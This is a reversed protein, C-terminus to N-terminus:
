RGRNVNEYETYLYQDTTQLTIVLSLASNLIEYDVMVPEILNEDMEETIINLSVGKTVAQAIKEMIENPLRKGYKNYAVTVAANIFSDSIMILFNELIRKHVHYKDVYDDLLQMSGAEDYFSEIIHPIAYCGGITYGGNSYALECARLADDVADNRAKLHASGHAGVHIIGMSCDLKGLRIQKNHISDSVITKANAEKLADRIEAQLKGKKTKVANSSLNLGKAIMSKNGVVLEECAGGVDMLKEFISVTMGMAEDYAKTYEESNPNSAYVAFMKQFAKAANNIMVRTDSDGAIIEAGVLDCFDLVCERDIAAPAHYEVFTIPVPEKGAKENRTNMASVKNVFSTTFGKAVLVLNPGDKMNGIYGSVSYFVDFLEDPLTNDFVLILPRKVTKTRAEFNDLYTDQLLLHAALDYGNVIEFYTNETGSDVRKIIPNTTEKYIDAIIRALQEDWNTSVLAIRYIASWMAEKDDSTIPTACELLREKIIDAAANLVNELDRVNMFNQDLYNRITDNLSKAVLITSSTGDGAKTNTSASTDLLITCLSKEAINSGINLARSTLWGDKTITVGNMNQIIANKGYPGMTRSVVDAMKTMINDMVKTLEDGYLVSVSVDSNPAANVGPFNKTESESFTQIKGM